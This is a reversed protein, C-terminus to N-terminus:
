SRRAAQLARAGILGLLALGAAAVVGRIHLRAWVEFSFRRARADFRGHAGRDGPLPMFVNDPRGPVEPEGTQQADYGFHGLFWDAFGPALRTGVIAKIASTGLWLERVPRESVRVAAEAIIEPQYIPPVPQAKRALRSRVVDFQPTNVAPLQLMSLRIGSKEHILECRLSDTFGRIAAKSACYASQLPISRYVLASGIQIITGQNRPRMQKLAAMTGHVYGLYNVETVRRYENATMQSVPSFVSVFAVNIWTDIRGFRAVVQEAAREVAIADTVDLPLVLAEGGAQEIERKCNNLAEETRALLGVKAGCAGFARAIARGVGSSAGTVVVVQRGAEIAM